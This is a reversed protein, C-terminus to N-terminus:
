IKFYYLALKKDIIGAWIGIGLLLNMYNTDIKENENIINENIKNLLEEQTYPYERLHKFINNYIINKKMSLEHIYNKSSKIDDKMKNVLVNGEDSLSVKNEIKIVLGM